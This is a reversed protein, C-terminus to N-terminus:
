REHIRSKLYDREVIKDRTKGELAALGTEARQLLRGGGNGGEKRGSLCYKTRKSGEEPGGTNEVKGL